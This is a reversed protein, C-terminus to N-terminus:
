PQKAVLAILPQSMWPRGVHNQMQKYGQSGFEAISIALRSCIFQTPHNLCLVHSETVVFVFKFNCFYWSVPKLTQGFSNCVSFRVLLKVMPLHLSEGPSGPASAWSGMFTAMGFRHGRSPWKLNWYFASVIPRLHDQWLDCHKEPSIMATANFLCTYYAHVFLLMDYLYSCNKVDKTWLIESFCDM